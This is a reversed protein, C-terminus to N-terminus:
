IQKGFVNWTSRSSVVCVLLCIFVVVVRRARCDVIIGFLQPKGVKKSPYPQKAIISMELMKRRM